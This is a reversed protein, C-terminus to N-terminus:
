GQGQTAQNSGTHDILAIYGVNPLASPCEYM